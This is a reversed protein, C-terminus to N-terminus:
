YDFYVGTADVGIKLPLSDDDLTIKKDFAQKLKINDNVEGGIDAFKVAINTEVTSLVDGNKNKLITKLKNENFSVDITAGLEELKAALDTQLEINGTITGWVPTGGGGGHEAIYQILDLQNTITGTINGWVAGGSSTPSFPTFPGRKTQPTYTCDAM